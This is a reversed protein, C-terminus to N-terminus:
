FLVEVQVGSNSVEGTTASVPPQGNSSLRREFLSGNTKPVEPMHFKQCESPSPPSYLQAKFIPFNLVFFLM